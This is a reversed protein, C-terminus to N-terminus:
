FGNEYKTEKDAIDYTGLKHKNESIRVEQKCGEFYGRFLTVYNALANM